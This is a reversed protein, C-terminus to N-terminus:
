EGEGDARIGYKEIRYIMTPRSMGLMRAAHSKNGRCVRLAQIILAKNLEDLNIGGPPLTFEGDGPAGPFPSRNMFALHSDRIATDDEMLIIREIVNKLERINGPWHHQLMIQRAERSIGQFKKGFKENFKSIFLLTLPIIDATRERLPPLTIKAVNLRYYLDDRFGGDRINKQLDRNTAAIVRVDVKKKETGGVRYFEKDELFRLLKVQASPQLEGIEDLFLIGKDALEIKGKKGENLGGTFSGKEYGFLESEILDKSIAGCNISIFPKGFRDSRYQITRAIVEKGTGTEGEILVTTDYGAAIVRAMKLAQKMGESEAVIDEIDFEQLYQRRLEEVERKLKLNGLAKEIIVDLEEIDLPKVLYDFAGIKMSKIVTKVDEYATMMVVVIERNLKKIKELTEIGDMGPLRIDLLILDPCDGDLVEVAKEGSGAVLTDYKESLVYNLSNQLLKDDDVILIKYRYM